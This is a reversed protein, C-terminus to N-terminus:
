EERWLSCREPQHANGIIWATKRPWGGTAAALEM